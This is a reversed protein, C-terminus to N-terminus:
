SNSVSKLKGFKIWAPESMKGGFDITVQMKVWGNNKFAKSSFIFDFSSKDKSVNAKKGKVGNLSLAKVIKDVNQGKGMSSGNGDVHVIVQSVKKNKLVIKAKTGIFGRSISAKHSKHNKSYKYALMSVTQTTQTAAQVTSINSETMFVPTTLALIAGVSAVKLINMRM